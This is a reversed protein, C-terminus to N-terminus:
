GFSKEMWAGACGESILEYGRRRLLGHAPATAPLVIRGAGGALGTTELADLLAGLVDRAGHAVSALLSLEPVRLDAGVRQYAAFGVIQGDFTAVVRASRALREYRPSRPHLHPFLRGLEANPLPEADAGLVQVTLGSVPTPTATAM